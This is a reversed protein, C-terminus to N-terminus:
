IDNLQTPDPSGWTYDRLPMKLLAEWRSSIHEVPNLCHQVGFHKLPLQAAQFIKKM